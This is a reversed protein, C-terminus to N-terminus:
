FCVEQLASKLTFSSRISFKPFKVNVLQNVFDVPQLVTELNNQLDTIGSAEDPLIVTMSIKNGDYPMRLFKAQLEACEYYDYKAQVSMMDVQKTECSALYFTDPQTNEVPFPKLWKGFFYVANVLVSVTDASLVSSPVLDTIKGNTQQSVWTNITDAAQENQAFDINEVSSNFYVKADTIFTQKLPINQNVYVNNAVTLTYNANSNNSPVIANLLGQMGTKIQPKDQPLDLGNALQTFTEGNGGITM